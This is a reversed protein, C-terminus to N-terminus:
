QVHRLKFNFTGRDIISDLKPLTKLQKIHKDYLLKTTAPRRSRMYLDLTSFLFGHEHNLFLLYFTSIYLNNCLSNDNWIYQSDRSKPNSPSPPTLVFRLVYPEVSISTSRLYLSNPNSPLM